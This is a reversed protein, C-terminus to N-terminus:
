YITKPVFIIHIDYPTDYYGLAIDVAGLENIVRELTLEENGWEQRIEELLLSAIFQKWLQDYHNKNDLIAKILVPTEETLARIALDVHVTYEMIWEDTEETIWEEEKNYSDHYGTGDGNLTYDKLYQVLNNEM